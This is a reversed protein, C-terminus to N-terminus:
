GPRRLTWRLGVASSGRNVVRLVEDAALTYSRTSDARVDFGAEPSDDAIGHVTVFVGDGSLGVFEIEVQVNEGEHFTTGSGPGLEYAGRGLVPSACAPLLALALSALALSRPRM